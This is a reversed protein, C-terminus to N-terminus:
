DAATGGSKSPAPDLAAPAPKAPAAQAQPAPVDKAKPAPDPVAKGDKERNAPRPPPLITRHSATM